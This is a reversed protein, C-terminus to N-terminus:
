RRPAALRKNKMWAFIGEEAEKWREAPARNPVVMQLVALMGLLLLHGVLGDETDDNICFFKPRRRLIDAFARIAWLPKNELMLFSYQASPSALIEIQNRRKEAAGQSLAYGYLVSLVLDDASRFRHSATRSFESQLISELHFLKDRDYAQPLHAPLLRPAPPKGWLSNLVAQTHACARDRASGRRIDCPLVTDQLFIKQGGGPLFFDSARVRRGLFVDDNFYVFRRALGPIRHLYMEIANSNFTPLDKPDPFVQAHTVLHVRPHSGDLWGPVQGNTLIHVRRVWPAFAFLSRISLRLEGNDRFHHLGAADPGPEVPGASAFRRVAAQFSPASSDVWTYVVDIAEDESDTRRPQLVAQPETLM